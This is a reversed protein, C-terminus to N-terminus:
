ATKRYVRSSSHNKQQKQWKETKMTLAVGVFIGETTECKDCEIWLKIEIICVYAYVYYNLYVFWRLSTKEKCNLVTIIDKLVHLVASLYKCSYSTHHM